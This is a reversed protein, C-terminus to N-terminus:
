EVNMLIAIGHQRLRLIMRILDTERNMDIKARKQSLEYLKIWRPKCCCLLYNYCSYYCAYNHLLPFNSQTDGSYLSVQQIKKTPHEYNDTFEHPETWSYLKSVIFAEMKMHAINGILRWGIVKFMFLLGGIAALCDFISYTQRNISTVIDSAYITFSFTM